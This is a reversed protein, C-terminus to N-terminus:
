IQNPQAFGLIVKEEPEGPDPVVISLMFSCQSLPAVIVHDTGDPYRVVIRFSERTAPQIDIARLMGFAGSYFVRLSEGAKKRHEMLDVDEALRHLLESAAHYQPEREISPHLSDRFDM